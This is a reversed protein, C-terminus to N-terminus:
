RARAFLGALWRRLVALASLEGSATAAEGRAARVLNAAFEDLLRSVVGSVLAGRSFQAFPGTVSYTLAVDLRSGAEDPAVGFRVEGQAASRGARDEGSGVVSGRRAEPDYHVTARGEFRAKIPGVAVTLRGTVRGEDEISTLTVGPLCAAVTEIDSLVGWLDDPPLAVTVSRALETGGDIRSHEAPLSDYPKSVFAGEGRGEGRPPSPSSTPVKDGRGEPLPNPHPPGSILRDGDSVEALTARIAAVIGNYGTCRCLNGALEERIRAEDAEPLRRLLDYATMLMGPTCYGCQLGHHTSFNERLAAMLPDRDFGEITTVAAGACSAALTLCGRQPVGDIMLTCAGCVGHECGLHTGTLHLAERLADALHTRGQVAISVPRGNVTMAVEHRSMARVGWRPMAPRGTGAGHRPPAPLGSRAAADGRRDAGRRRAPRRAPSRARGAAAPPREIAGVLARVEGRERDVLVAGIAKAFEGVKRCFKQYGWRAAGGRKPVRVGTLLGGAPLRTAFPGVFFDPLPVAREDEGPGAVMLAEAGLATLANVWDAAPDAHVLSGGITGRNRM